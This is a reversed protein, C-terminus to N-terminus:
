AIVASGVTVAFAAAAISGFYNSGASTEEDASSGMGFTTSTALQQNGSRGSQLLSAENGFKMVVRDLLALGQADKFEVNLVVTVSFDVSGDVPASFPPDTVVFQFWAQDDNGNVPNDSNQVALNLAASWDAGNAGDTYFAYSTAPDSVEVVIDDVSVKAITVKSSTATAVFYATQGNIFNSASIVHALDKYVAISASVDVSDVVKACFDESDLVFDVVFQNNIQGQDDQVLPCDTQASFSPYCEAAFQVSYSGDLECLQTADVQLDLLWEQSCADADNVSPNPVDATGPDNCDVVNAFSDVSLGAVNPISNVTASSTELRFPWQTSTFLRVKADVDTVASVDLRVEQRIIAALVNPPQFASLNSVSASTQKPFKVIFPLESHIARSLGTSRIPSLTEKGDLELKCTFVVFGSLGSGEETRACENVLDGWNVEVSYTDWCEANAANITATAEQKTISFGSGDGLAGSSLVVDYYKRHYEAVILFRDKQGAVNFGSADANLAPAFETELWESAPVNCVRESEDFGRFDVAGSGGETLSGQFLKGAVPSDWFYSDSSATLFSMVVRSPNVTLPWELTDGNWANMFFSVGPQAVTGWPSVSIPTSPNWTGSTGGFKTATDYCGEWEGFKANPLGRFDVAGGGGSQLAGTFLRGTVPPSFFYPDSEDYHFNMVLNAPNGDATSFSLSNGSWQPNTYSDGNFVFGGSAKLTMIGAGNWTGAAGGFKTAADYTGQWRTALTGLGRFDVAGSGGSQVAGQFLPGEQPVADWFYGESSSALFSISASEQNGDASSWIVGNGTWSPSNITRGDFTLGGFADVALIPGVNWSGAAGGFKQGTAYFGAWQATRITCGLTLLPAAALLGTLAIAAHPTVRKSSGFM